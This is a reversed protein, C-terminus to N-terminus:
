QRRDQSHDIPIVNCQEMGHAFSATSLLAPTFPFRIMAPEAAAVETQQEIVEAQAARPITGPGIRGISGEMGQNLGKLLLHDDQTLGSAMGFLPIGGIEFETIATGPMRSPEDFGHQRHNVANTMELSDRMPCPCRELRAEGKRQGGEIEEDLPM